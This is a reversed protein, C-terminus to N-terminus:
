PRQVGAGIERADRRDMREKMAQLATASAAMAASFDGMKAEISRLIEFQKGQSANVEEWDRALEGQQLQHARDLGNHEAELSALAVALERRDAAATDIDAQREQRATRKLALGTIITGGAAALMAVGAIIFNGLTLDM